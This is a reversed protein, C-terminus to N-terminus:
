VDLLVEKVVNPMGAKLIHTDNAEEEEEEEEKL